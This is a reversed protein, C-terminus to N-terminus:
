NFKKLINLKDNKEADEIAQTKPKWFYGNANKQMRGEEVVGSALPVRSRLGSQFYLHGLCTVVNTSVFSCLFLSLSLAYESSKTDIKLKGTMNVSYNWLSEALEPTIDTSM